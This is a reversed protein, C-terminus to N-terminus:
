SAGVPLRVRMYLGDGQHEERPIARGESALCEVHFALMEQLSTLAEQTDIGYDAIGLAPVHAVTQGTEPDRTLTIHYQYSQAPKQTSMAGIM